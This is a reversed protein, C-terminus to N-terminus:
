FFFFFSLSLSLFLVRISLFLSLLNFSIVSFLHDVTLLTWGVGVGSIAQQSIAKRKNCRNRATSSYIHIKAPQNPPPPPPPCHPIQLFPPSPLNKQSFPQGRWGGMVFLFFFNAPVLLGESLSGLPLFYWSSPTPPPPPPQLSLPPPPPLPFM